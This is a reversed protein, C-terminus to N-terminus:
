DNKELINNIFKHERFKKYDPLDTIFNIGLQRITEFSVTYVQLIKNDDENEEILGRILLNRLILSCNVGRIQEIEPRTLPGRYLIITLTELQAKTLEGSAENKIFLSIVESNAPETVMQIKGGEILIHIGSNENNYKLKLSELVEKVEAEKKQVAKAIKKILLPKSAVFLISEIQSNLNM